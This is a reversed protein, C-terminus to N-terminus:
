TTTPTRAINTVAEALGTITTRNLCHWTRSDSSFTRIVNADRLIHLHTSVTSQALPIEDVIDGVTRPCRTHFLELIALRIPNGLAKAVSATETPTLRCAGIPIDDLCGVPATKASKM